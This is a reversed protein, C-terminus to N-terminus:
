FTYTRREDAIVIPGAPSRYVVAEGFLQFTAIGSENGFRVRTGDSRIGRLERNIDLYVLLDGCVEWREPVYPEVAKPGADTWLMLNGGWLYALLRDKVWYQSPMSDTLTVVEGGRWAKLKLTGDVFAVLGDGAQANVPRLGSLETQTGGTGGTFVDHADDWYAFVDNGNVAIGVDSDTTLPRVVGRHFLFVTRRSRDYFTVTNAGQTWQPLASGREVTALPIRRGHWHVALEHEISDVFTVLSDSVIFREVGTALVVARGERLINLTDGMCWAVRDGSVQLANAGRRDLVQSKRAEVTHLCLRGEHDVYVLADSLAHIVRPPRADVETFRRDAFLMTRELDNVFPVVHQAVIPVQLGGMMALALNRMSARKM